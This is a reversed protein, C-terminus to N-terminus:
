FRNVWSGGRNVWGGARNAWAGGAGARNAWAGGGRTVVAGGAGARNAWGGAGARNAWGAAEVETEDASNLLASGLLAGGIVIKSWKKLGLLFNRRDMLGEKGGKIDDGQQGKPDNDM